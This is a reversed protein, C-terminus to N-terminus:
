LYLQVREKVKASHAHIQFIEQHYKWIQVDIQSTMLEYEVRHRIGPGNDTVLNSIGPLYPYMKMAYYLYIIIGLFKRLTVSFVASFIDSRSKLESM